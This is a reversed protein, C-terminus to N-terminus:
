HQHRHGGGVTGEVGAASLAVTLECTLGREGIKGGDGNLIGGLASQLMHALTFYQYSHPLPLAEPHFVTTRCCCRTSSPSISIPTHCFCHASTSAVIAQPHSPTLSSTPHASSAWEIASWSADAAVVQVPTPPADAPTGDGGDWSIEHLAVQAQWLGGNVLVCVHEIVCAVAANCVLVTRSGNTQLVALFNSVVTV